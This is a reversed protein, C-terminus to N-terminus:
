LDGRHNRGLLLDIPGPTCSPRRVNVSWLLEGHASGHEPSSVVDFVSEKKLNLTAM